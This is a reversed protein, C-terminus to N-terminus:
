AAVVAALRQIDSVRVLRSRRDVGREFTALYGSSVLRRVTDYSVGALSAATRLNVFEPEAVSGM